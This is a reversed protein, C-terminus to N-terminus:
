NIVLCLYTIVKRFLLNDDTIIVPWRSAEHLQTAAEEAQDFYFRARKIQEKMFERWGDTVKRSFVDSDSLGFKALEDQPLYVRGRSASCAAHM